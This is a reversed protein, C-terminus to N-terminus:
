SLERKNRDAASRGVNLNARSGAERGAASARYDTNIPKWNLKGMKPFLEKVKDTVDEFRLALATGIGENAQRMDFLRISVERVYAQVFSRQYTKPSTIARPEDGIKACHRKYANILRHGDPWPVLVEPQTKSPRVSKRWDRVMWSEPSQAGGPFDDKYQEYTRNMLRAIREWKVGADHLIYVNEDFSKAPDVAPEVEGSVHLMLSTVLLEMYRLDSNYGVATIECAASKAKYFHIVVQCRCHNAVTTVLDVLQQKVPNDGSCLTFRYTEPVMRQAAPRTKDLEAEAIAYKLMMEEARARCADAEAKPTAAHDAKDILARVKSLVKDIAQEAM